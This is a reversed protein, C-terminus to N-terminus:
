YFTVMTMCGTTHTLLAQALNARSKRVCRYSHMFYVCACTKNKKPQPARQADGILLDFVPVSFKSIWGVIDALEIVIKSTFEWLIGIYLMLSM